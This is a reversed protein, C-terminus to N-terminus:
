CYIYNENAFRLKKNKGNKQNVFDLWTCPYYPEMNNRLLYSLLQNYMTEAGGGM